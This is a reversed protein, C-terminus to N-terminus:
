RVVTSSGVPVDASLAHPTTLHPRDAGRDRGVLCCRRRFLRQRDAGYATRLAVVTYGLGYVVLAVSAMRELTASRTLAALGALAGAAFWAAHVHLAFYLHQPYNQGANRYALRVLLGFFPVLLFMARPLWTNRAHRVVEEMDRESSYGLQQLTAKEEDSTPKVVIRLGADPPAISTIAFYAVSFILYLRIPSIWRTRRGEFQERTLFGPSLLLHKITRFIKGDVHLMEHTFEHLFDAFRPNLPRAKQGCAACYPGALAAGCNSCAGSEISIDSM